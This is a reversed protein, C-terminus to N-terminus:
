GATLPSTHLLTTHAVCASVTDSASDVIWSAQYDSTGKPVKKVRTVCGEAERLEEESPWTQEGEMPDPVVESM